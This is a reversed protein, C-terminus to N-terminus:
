KSKKASKPTQPMQQARQAPAAVQKIPAKAVATVKPAVKTAVPAKAQDASVLGNVHRLAQMMMIPPVIGWPANFGVFIVWYLFPDSSAVQEISFAPHAVFWTLGYMQCTCVVIQLSWRYASRGVIAWALLLCLPGTVLATIAEMAATGPELEPMTGFGYRYDSAGYLNMANVMGTSADQRRFVFNYEIWSHIIFCLLLWLVSPSFTRLPASSRRLTSTLLLLLQLALIGGVLGVVCCRCCSLLVTCMRHNRSLAIAHMLLECARM